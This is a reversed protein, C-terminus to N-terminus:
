ADELTTLHDLYAASMDGLTRGPLRQGCSCAAALTERDLRPVHAGPGWYVPAHDPCMHLGFTPHQRWGPRDPRLAEYEATCGPADCCRMADPAYSM